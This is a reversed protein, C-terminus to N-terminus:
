QNTLNNSISETKLRLSKKLIDIRNVLQEETIKGEQFALELELLKKTQELVYLYLQVDYAHSRELNILYENLKNLTSGSLNKSVINQMLFNGLYDPYPPPNNEFFHNRLEDGQPINDFYEILEESYDYCINVSTIASNLLKIVDHREKQENEYNTVSIALLVGVSTAILTLFFNIGISNREIVGKFQPLFTFAGLLTLILPLVIYIM